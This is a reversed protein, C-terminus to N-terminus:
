ELRGPRGSYDRLYLFDHGITRRSLKAINPMTRKYHQQKVREWFRAVFERDFDCAVVEEVSYREDVLLYLLADAVEYTFGLEEEDTQGVWLDASPAKSLIAAPVKLSAALQRVQYKYLDAIPQLAAASDGYITSYGLLMETKNSTGLVLGGWAASQDYLALMRLRAYVNGRRLRDMEPFREFLPAALEGISIDVHPLGLHRILTGADDMSAASSEAAPLRVALVNSPGLAISAITAALASDIGGSLGVVCRSLGAKAVADRVFGVLVRLALDTHISLRVLIAEAAAANSPVQRQRTLLYPLELM